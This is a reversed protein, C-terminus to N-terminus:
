QFFPLHSPLYRSRVRSMSPWVPLYGPRPAIGGNDWRHSADLSTVPHPAMANERLDALPDEGNSELQRWLDVAKSISLGTEQRAILWKLIEIDRRSYLRHGGSTREPQPLGYRREWARLTDSKIGTEQVVARLNFIPLDDLSSM